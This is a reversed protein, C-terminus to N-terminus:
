LFELVSFAYASFLDFSKVLVTNKFYDGLFTKRFIGQKMVWNCFGSFSQTSNGPIGSRSIGQTVERNKSVTEPIQWYPHLFIFKSVLHNEDGFLM